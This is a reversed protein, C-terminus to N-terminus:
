DGRAFSEVWNEPRSLGAVLIRGGQTARQGCQGRQRPSIIVSETELSRETPVAERLFSFSDVVSRLSCTHSCVVSKM